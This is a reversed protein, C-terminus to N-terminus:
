GALLKAADKWLFHPMPESLEWEINMPKSGYHNQISGEGIFVYGLTNGFEDSKKERVFLLIRKNNAKHKIYSIGKPTEPGTSNQSQWHFLRENVAYDDYMTTPSFDEESKILNIFLLETNLEKSEAIGERKSSIKDFTSFKFATLIQDRTYRAHVMLPQSYPLSIAVEKFDIGDILIELVTIIETVLIKNRGLIAISEELSKCGHKDTQWFDYHLMLAM